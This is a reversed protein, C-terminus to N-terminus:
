RLADVATREKLSGLGTVADFGELVSCGQPQILTCGLVPKPQPPVVGRYGKPLPVRRPRLTNDVYGRDNERQVDRFADPAHQALVYLDAAVTLRKARPVLSNIAALQAGVISSSESTGGVGGLGYGHWYVRLHGSADASVDPVIRDKVLASSFEFGAKPPLQWAPRPELSIGGGTAHDGDNWPAEDPAGDREGLQTGGACIVFPSVCPYATSAVDIGPIRYGYAGDDGAATVLPIGRVIAELFPIPPKGYTAAIPAFTPGVTFPFVVVTPADTEDLARELAITGDNGASCVDDYDLVITALPAMTLASEADLSPEQGRDDRGCESAAAKFAYSKEVVNSPVAGPPAGDARLFLSIDRLTFRDSADEIIAIRENGGGDPVADYLDRFREPSYWDGRFLTFTPVAALHPTTATVLGHVARVGAFPLTLPGSPAIATRAGQAYTRFTTGFAKQAHTVDMIGGAVLHNRAVFIDSAGNAKLFAFLADGDRQDRGFRAAFAAADLPKGHLPSAPDTMALALADLDDKPALEIAVRLLERGDAPGGPQMGAVAGLPVEIKSVAAAAPSAWSALLGVAFVICRIPTSSLDFTV